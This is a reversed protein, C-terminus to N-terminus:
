KIGANVDDLVGDADSPLADIAAREEDTLNAREAALEEDTALYGFEPVNGHRSAPESALPEPPEAFTLEGNARDNCYFYWTGARRNAIHVYGIGNDDPEIPEHCHRCLVTPEDLADLIERIELPDFGSAGDDLTDFLELAARVIEVAKPSLHLDM